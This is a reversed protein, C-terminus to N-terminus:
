LRARLKEALERRGPKNVCTYPTHHFFVMRWTAEQHAALDKRLWAVQAGQEAPPRNSDLAAFHANGYDFSYDRAVDFYRLYAAGDQEHNGLAPFIPTNRLTERAVR